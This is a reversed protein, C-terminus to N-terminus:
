CIIHLAGNGFPNLSQMSALFWVEWIISTHKLVAITVFYKSLATTHIFLFMECWFLVASLELRNIHMAQEESSWIGGITVGDCVM